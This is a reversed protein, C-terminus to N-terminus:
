SHVILHFGSHFDNIFAVDWYVVKIHVANSLFRCEGAARVCPSLHFAIVGAAYEQTAWTHLQICLHVLKM